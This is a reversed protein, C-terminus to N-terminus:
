EVIEELNDLAVKMLEENTTSISPTDTKRLAFPMNEIIVKVKYSKDGYGNLDLIKCSGRVYPNYVNYLSLASPMMKNVIYREVSDSKYIIVKPDIRLIPRLPRLKYPINLDTSVVKEFEWTMMMVPKFDKNFIAGHTCYYKQEGPQTGFEILHYNKISSEINNIISANITKFSSIKNTNDLTVALADIIDLNSVNVVNDLAFLPIEIKPEKMPIMMYLSKTNFNSSRSYRCGVSNCRRIDEFCSRITSELNAM